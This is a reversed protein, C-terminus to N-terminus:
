PRYRMAYEAVHLAIFVLSIGAHITSGSMLSIGGLWLAPLYAPAFRFLPAEAWAPVSSGMYPLWSAFYLLLGTSYLALGPVFSPRKCDIPLLVPYLLAGMRFVWEVGEYWAPVTGPFATMDLKATFAMNWALPALAFYAHNLPALRISSIEAGFGSAQAKGSLALFM